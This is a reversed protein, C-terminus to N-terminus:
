VEALKKLGARTDEVQKPNGRAECSVFNVSRGLERIVMEMDQWPRLSRCLQVTRVLDIQVIRDELM